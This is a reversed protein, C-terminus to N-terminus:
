DEKVQELLADSIRRALDTTKERRISDDAMKAYWEDGNGALATLEMAYPSSPGDSRWKPFGGPNKSSWYLSPGDQDELHHYM